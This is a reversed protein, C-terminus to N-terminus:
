KEKFKKELSSVEMGNWYNNWQEKIDYIEVNKDSVWGTYNTSYEWYCIQGDIKCKEM